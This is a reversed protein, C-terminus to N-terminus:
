SLRAKERERREHTARIKARMTRLKKTECMFYVSLKGGRWLKTLKNPRWSVSIRVRGIRM